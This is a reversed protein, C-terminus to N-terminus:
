HGPIRLHMVRALRDVFAPKSYNRGWSVRAALQWAETVDDSGSNKYLNYLGSQLYTLMEDSNVEISDWTQDFANIGMVFSNEPCMACRKQRM